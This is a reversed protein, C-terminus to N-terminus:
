TLKSKCLSVDRIVGYISSSSQSVSSPIVYTADFNIAKANHTTGILYFGDFMKTIFHPTPSVTANHMSHQEHILFINGLSTVLFTQDAYVSVVSLCCLLPIIYIIM